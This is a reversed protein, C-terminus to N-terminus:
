EIRSYHWRYFQRFVYEIPVMLISHSLSVDRCLQSVLFFCSLNILEKLSLVVKLTTACGDPTM